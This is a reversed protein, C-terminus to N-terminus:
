VPQPTAQPAVTRTQDAEQLLHVDHDDYFISTHYKHDLRQTRTPQAQLSVVLWIFKLWLPARSVEPHVTIM